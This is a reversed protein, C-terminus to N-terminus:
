QWAHTRLYALIEEYASRTLHIGDGNDFSAALMGESNYLVSATDAVRVNEHAAAIEPLWSNLTQIHANLTATDVTFGDARCVPYVTQLIIKTNPSAQKVANILKNYSNVYSTKNAVFGTIGNLGFSLVLYEPKARECAEAITLAEGTEPYTIPESTTRSSLMRTGSADAWVQRTSTGGSLVGRARLHATSSEGFFIMSDIYEMGADPTEAMTVLQPSVQTPTSDTDSETPAETETEPARNAIKVIAFVATAILCLVTLAAIILILYALLNNETKSDM